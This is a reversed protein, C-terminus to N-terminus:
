QRRYETVSRGLKPGFTRRGLTASAHLERPQEGQHQHRPGSSDPVGVRLRRRGEDGDEAPGFAVGDPPTWCKVSARASRPHTSPRVTLISVRYPSHSGSRVAAMACASSASRGSTSYVCESRAARTAIRAVVDMSDDDPRRDVEDGQRSQLAEGPGATVHCAHSGVLRLEIAFPELHELLGHWRDRSDRVHETGVPHGLLREDGQLGGSPAEPHLELTERQSVRSLGFGRESARHTLRRLAHQHLVGRDEGAVRVAHDAQGRPMSQRGDRLDWAKGLTPAEELVASIDVRHEPLTRPVDVPDELAGPGAVQGDLLRGSTRAQDDVLLGRFRQTHRGATSRSRASCIM